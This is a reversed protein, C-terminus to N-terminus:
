HYLCCPPRRGQAAPCPLAPRPPRVCLATPALLHLLPPWPLPPARCRPAGCRYSRRMGCRRWGGHCRLLLLAAAPEPHLRPCAPWPAQRTHPLPCSRRRRHSLLPLLVLTSSVSPVPLSPLPLPAPACGNAFRGQHRRELRQRAPLQARRGLRARRRRGAQAAAPAPRQM